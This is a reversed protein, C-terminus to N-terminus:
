TGEWGLEKARNELMALTLIEGHDTFVKGRTFDEEFLNEKKVEYLADLLVNLESKDKGKFRHKEAKNYFEYIPLVRVTAKLNALDNEYDKFIEEYHPVSPVEELIEM